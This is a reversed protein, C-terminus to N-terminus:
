EDELIGLLWVPSNPSPQTRQPHVAAVPVVRSRPPISADDLAVAHVLAPDRYQIRGNVQTANAPTDDEDTAVLAVGQLDEVIQDFDVADGTEVVREQGSPLCAAIGVGMLLLLAVVRRLSNGALASRIKNLAVFNM